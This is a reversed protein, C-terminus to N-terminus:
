SAHAADGAAAAEFCFEVGEPTAKLAAAAQKMIAAKDATVATGNISRLVWGVKVGQAAAQTGAEGVKTVVNKELSIGLRGEM